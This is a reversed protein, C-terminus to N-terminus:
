SVAEVGQRYKSQAENRKKWLVNRAVGEIESLAKMCASEGPVVRSQFTACNRQINEDELLRKLPELMSAGRAHLSMQLGCNLSEVRAANDFQDHAFL